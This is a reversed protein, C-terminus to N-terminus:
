WSTPVSRQSGKARYAMRFPMGFSYWRTARSRNASTITTTWGPRGFGIVCHRISAASDRLPFCSIPIAARRSARAPNLARRITLPARVWQWTASLRAESVASPFERRPRFPWFQRGPCTCPFATELGVNGEPSRM